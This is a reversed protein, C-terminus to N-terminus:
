DNGRGRVRKRAPCLPATQVLAQDDFPIRHIAPGSGAAIFHLLLKIILYGGEQQNSKFPPLYQEKKQEEVEVKFFPLLSKLGNSLGM